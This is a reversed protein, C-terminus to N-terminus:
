SLMAFLFLNLYAFYRAYGKDDKMYGVSYLHILSGVGTVILTMLLSLRDVKFSLSATFDGVSIWNWLPPTTFGTAPDKAFNYLGIAVAFALLPMGVGILSILAKPIPTKTRICIVAVLGNLVAGMLPLLPVLLVVTGIPIGFLLNQM